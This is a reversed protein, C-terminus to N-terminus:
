PEDGGVDDRSLVSWDFDEMPTSTATALSDLSDDSDREDLADLDPGLEATGPAERAARSARARGEGQSAPGKEDAVAAFALARAPVGGRRRHVAFALAALWLMVPLVVRLIHLSGGDFTVRITAAESAVFGNAWGFTVDHELVEGDVSAKWGPDFQEALLLVGADDVRLKSLGGRVSRAHDSIESRTAFAIADSPTVDGGRATDSLEDTYLARTSVWAENEYLALGDSRRSLQLDLQTPLADAFRPESPSRVTSDPAPRDVVAIYRVGLPALVHGFRTTRGSRALEIATAVIDDGESPSSPFQDRVDGGGNRTVAFSDVTGGVVADVPLAEAAGVWLVRFGGDSSAQRDLFALSSSTWSARPADFGGDFVDPFVGFMPLAACAALALAFGQRVGFVFNRIEEVFAGLGIGITLALGLAAPVLLVDPSPVSADPALWTPIFAAAMSALAIFWARVAWAFRAETAILLPLSAGAYLFWPWVGAGAPGTRFALLDVIELVRRPAFGFAHGSSGFASASWPWLLLGVGAVTVFALMLVRMSSRAGGVFPLAAFMAIAVLLPFTAAIPAVAAAIATMVITGMVARRRTDGTAGDAIILCRHLVFPAFAFLVLAGLQTNAYANRAIPNAGYAILAAAAPLPRISLRRTLRYMGILGMPISGFVVAAQALAAHGFLLASWVGFVGLSSPAATDAGFGAFRWRGGWAGLLDTVGPWRQFGAVSPVSQVVFRRAGFAMMLAFAIAVVVEPSRCGRRVDRLRTQLWGQALEVRATRHRRRMVLVRVRSSGRVMFARVDRDDVRRLSQVEKRDARVAGPRAVTSWFGGFVARALRPRRTVLYGAVEFINLLAAAPMVWILAAASYNKLLTRVRTRAAAGLSSSAADARAALAPRRRARADPVVLVRAGALRARWCLDLDENGPSCKPDFGGLERFLDARVLMVARSVFFVDRVADHQEQDLEGPEIGTMAVGYHDTAMGVELLVQAHDRDVIKPGCIAANSRFAEEVLQAIAHPELEVDDAVFCFFPAGEVTAIVDNAATVADPHRELGRVLADPAARAVRERRAERGPRSGRDLVLVTLAPYDQASLAELSAELHEAGETVVVAVVAPAEPHGLQSGAAGVAPPRGHPDPTAM